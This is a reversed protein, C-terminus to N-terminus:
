PEFYLSPEGGCANNPYLAVVASGNSFLSTIASQDGFGSSIECRGSALFVDAEGFTTCSKNDYTEMVTFDGFIEKSHAFRDSINCQVDQQHRVHRQWLRHQQVRGRCLEHDCQIVALADPTGACNVGSFVEVTETAVAHVPRFCGAVFDLAADAYEATFTYFTSWQVVPRM